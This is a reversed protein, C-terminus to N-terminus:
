TFYVGQDSSKIIRLWLCLIFVNYFIAQQLIVVPPQNREQPLNQRRFKQKKPNKEEFILGM